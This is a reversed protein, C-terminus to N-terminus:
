IQQKKIRDAYGRIGGPAVTIHFGKHLKRLFNLMRVTAIESKIGYEYTLLFEHHALAIHDM